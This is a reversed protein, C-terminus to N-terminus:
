KWTCTHTHMYGRRMHACTHMQACTHAYCFSPSLPPLTNQKLSLILCLCVVGMHIRVCLFSRTRVNFIRYHMDSDPPNHSCSFVWCLSQWLNPNPLAVRNSSTKRQSFSGFKGHSFNGNPCSLTCIHYLRTEYIRTNALSVFFARSQSWCIAQM